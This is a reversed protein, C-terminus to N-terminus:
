ELRRGNPQEKRLWTYPGTPRKPCDACEVSVKEADMIGLLVLECAKKYQETYLIGDDDAWQDFSVRENPKHREIREFYPCGDDDLYDDPNLVGDYRWGEPVWEEPVVTATM